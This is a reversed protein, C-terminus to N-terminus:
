QESNEFRKTKCIVPCYMPQEQRTVTIKTNPIFWEKHKPHKVSKFGFKKCLNERRVHLTDLGFHKLADGYTTFGSGLIIYLAARQVREIDMTESKTLGSHWAPVALEVVSRVQKIFVDILDCQSAGLAKLRRLVWLRSFARAVIYETNSSWKMDARIILGLIRMEEVVELQHGELEFDPMFDMNRGNNFLMLKTKKFNMKMQNKKAYQATSILQKHVYSKEPPLAHGTRAHYNDPLPRVPVPVLIDKLKVAEALTMDDVYKM